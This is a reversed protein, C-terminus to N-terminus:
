SRCYVSTLQRSNHGSRKVETSINVMDGSKSSAHVECGTLIYCCCCLDDAQPFDFGSNELRCSLVHDENVETFVAVVIVQSPFQTSGV